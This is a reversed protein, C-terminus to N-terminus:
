TPLGLAARVDDAFLFEKRDENTWVHIRAIAHVKAEAAAQAEGAAVLGAHTKEWDSRWRDREAILAAIVDKPAVVYGAEDLKPLADAVALTDASGFAARIELLMDILAQGKPLVDNVATRAETDPM